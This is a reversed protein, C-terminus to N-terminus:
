CLRKGVFFASFALCFLMVLSSRSPAPYTSNREKYGLTNQHHKKKQSQSTFGALACDDFLHLEQIAVGVGLFLPFVVNFDNETICGLRHLRNQANRTQM